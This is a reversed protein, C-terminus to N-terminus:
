SGKEPYAVALMYGRGTLVTTAIEGIGIGGSYDIRDSGEKVRAM